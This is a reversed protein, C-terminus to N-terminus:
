ESLMITISVPVSAVSAQSDLVIEGNPATAGTISITEDEIFAAWMATGRMNFALQVVPTTALAGTGLTITGTQWLTSAGPADVQNKQLAQNTGSTQVLTTTRRLQLRVNNDTPAAFVGFQAKRIQSRLGAIARFDELLTDTSATGNTTAQDVASYYYM